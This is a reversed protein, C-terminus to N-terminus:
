SLSDKSYASCIKVFESAYRSITRGKLACVCLPRIIPEPRLISLVSLNLPNIYPEVTRDHTITIGQGRSVLQFISYQTTIRIPAHLPVGDHHFQREVAAALRQSPHPLIVNESACASLPIGPYKSQEWWVAQKVLHHDRPTVVVRETNQLTAVIVTDEPHPNVVNIMLDIEGEKLLPWLKASSEESVYLEIDPYRKHYAVLINTIDTDHLVGIRIRGRRLTLLEQIETELQKQYAALRKAREVYEIGFNTPVLHKGVRDFLPTGLEDEIRKIAKSLASPTLHLQDAAQLISGYKAVEIIYIYSKDLM